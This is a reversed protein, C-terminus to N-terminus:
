VTDCGTSWFIFCRPHLLWVFAIAAYIWIQPSQVHALFAGGPFTVLYSTLIFIATVVFPAALAWALPHDVIYRQLVLVLAATVLLV